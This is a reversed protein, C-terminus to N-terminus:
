TESDATASVGGTDSANKDNDQCAGLMATLAIAISLKQVAARYSKNAREM